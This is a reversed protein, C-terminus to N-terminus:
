MARQVDLLEVLVYHYLLGQQPNNLQVETGLQTIGPTHPTLAIMAVFAITKFSGGGAIAADIAGDVNGFNIKQSDLLSCAPQVRKLLHLVQVCIFM